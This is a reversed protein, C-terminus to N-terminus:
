GIAMLGAGTLYVVSLDELGDLLNTIRTGHAQLASGLTPINDPSCTSDIGGVRPLPTGALFICCFEVHRLVLKRDLWAGEAVGPLTGGPAFRDTGKLPRHAVPVHRHFDLDRDRDTLILFSYRNGGTHFIMRVTM